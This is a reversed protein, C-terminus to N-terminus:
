NMREGIDSMLGLGTKRVAESLGEGVGKVVGLEFVSM